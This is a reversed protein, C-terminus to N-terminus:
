PAPVGIVVEPEDGFRSAVPANNPDGSYAAVWQYTGAANPVFGVPTTYTGNGSVTVTETDIVVNNPDFLSFTIVGGPNFGGSLTASDTLRMGSGLLVTGGPNTTISIAGVAEPAMLIALMILGLHRLAKERIAGM